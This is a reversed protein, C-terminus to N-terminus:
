RGPTGLLSLFWLHILRTDPPPAPEWAYADVSASFGALEFTPLTCSAGTEVVDNM